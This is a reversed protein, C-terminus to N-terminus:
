IFRKFNAKLTEISERITAGHLQDRTGKFGPMDSASDEENDKDNSLGMSQKMSEKLLHFIQDITIAKLEEPLEDFPRHGGQVSEEALADMIMPFFQEKLQEVVGPAPSDYFENVEQQM